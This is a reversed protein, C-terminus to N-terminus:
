DGPGARHVGHITRVIDRGLLDDAGSEVMSGVAAVLWSGSRHRTQSASSSPTPSPSVSGFSYKELCSLEVLEARFCPGYKSCHHRHHGELLRHGFFFAVPRIDTPAFVLSSEECRVLLIEGWKFAVHVPFAGTFCYFATQTCEIPRFTERSGSQHRLVRPTSIKPNKPASTTDAGTKCIHFPHFGNNKPSARGICAHKVLVHFSLDPYGSITNKPSKAVPQAFVTGLSRPAPRLSPHVIICASGPFSPVTARKQGDSQKM